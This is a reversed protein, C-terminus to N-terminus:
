IAKKGISGGIKLMENVDHEQWWDLEIVNKLGNDMLLKKNALGTIFIPHFRKELKKLTPLDMHDYHSHSIVVYHLYPIKNIALGPPTYRKPGAWTVPSCRESWIPDTLIGKGDLQIYVTAHGIWTLSPHPNNTKLRLGNNKLVSFSYEKPNLSPVKEFMRKFRWTIVSFFSHDEFNASPNQFGNNTQHKKIVEDTKSCNIFFIINLPIILIYLYRM